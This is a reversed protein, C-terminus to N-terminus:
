RDKLRYVFKIASWTDDIAVVKVDVLGTALGLNRVVNDTLDSPVGSAKKPWSIWLQGDTMLHAKLLDCEAELQVHSDYFAHIWDYMTHDTLERDAAIGPLLKNYVVPAHLVALSTVNPLDLKQALPTGSYDAM